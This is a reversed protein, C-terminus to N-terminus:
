IYLYKLKKFSLVKFDEIVVVREIVWYYVFVGMM